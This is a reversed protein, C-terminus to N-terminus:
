RSNLQQSQRGLVMDPRCKLDLGDNFYAGAALIRYEFLIASQIDRGQISPDMNKWLRM